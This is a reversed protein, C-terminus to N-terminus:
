IYLVMALLQKAESSAAHFGKILEDKNYAIRMGRGGGGAAAKVLVPYGIERAVKCAEEEDWIAGDSGPIVPVGAKALLEKALVKDGMSQIASSSPGIFTIRSEECLRAFNANESLFGYGPHIADISNAQAIELIKEMDLYGKVNGVCYAEDARRVHLSNADVESYIAVSKMGMEKVARMVRIAIEGRNAILVKKFM